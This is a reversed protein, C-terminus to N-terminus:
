SRWRPLSCCRDAPWRSAEGDDHFCDCLELGTAAITLSAAFAAMFGSVHIREALAYATFTIGLV